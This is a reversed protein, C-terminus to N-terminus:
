IKFDDREEEVEARKIQGKLIEIYQDIWKIVNPNDEDKKFEVLQNMKNRYHVSAEGSWGENFSNTNFLM